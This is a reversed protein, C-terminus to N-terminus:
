LLDDPDIDSRKRRESLNSAIAVGVAFAGILKAMSGADTNVARKASASANRVSRKADRRREPTLGVAQMTDRVTGFVRREADNAMKSARYSAEDMVAHAKNGAMDMVRAAETRARDAAIDAALSLRAEVERKLDDSTPMPQRPKSAVILVVALVLLLGAVALSALTSGWGLEHALFSWLAAVLFGLAVAGLLGAGVKLGTGRVRDKVALQMKHAFDFM